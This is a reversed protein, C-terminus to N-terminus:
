RRRTFMLAYAVIAAFSFDHCRFVARCRLLTIAVDHCLRMVHIAAAHTIHRPAHERRARSADAFYRTHLMLTAYPLPPQRFILMAAAAAAVAHRLACIMILM